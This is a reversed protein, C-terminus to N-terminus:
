VNAAELRRCPGKPTTPAGIANDLYTFFKQYYFRGDRHHHDHRLTGGMLDFPVVNHLMWPLDYGSHLEVLLYVIVVNYIARALPHARLLNVAAVSCAVDILQETYSLRLTDYARTVAQDHHLAHVNNYLWPIRHMTWHGFFFLADYVILLAAIQFLLGIATPPELPLKRRPFLYDFALLPVLYSVLLNYANFEEKGTWQKVSTNKAIRWPHMSPIFMDLCYFLTLPPFFALSAVVPELSDHSFWWSSRLYAWLSAIANNAADQQWVVLSLAAIVAIQCTQITPLSPLSGTTKQAM